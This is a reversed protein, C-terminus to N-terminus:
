GGQRRLGQEQVGAPRPRPRAVRLNGAAGRLVGRRVQHAAARPRHRPSLPPCPRICRTKTSAVRVVAKRSPRSASTREHAQAHAGRPAGCGDGPRRLLPAEQLRQLIGRRHPQLIRQNHRGAPALPHPQARPSLPRRFPGTPTPLRNLSRRSKRDQLRELTLAGPRGRAAAGDASWGAAPRLAAAPARAPRPVARAAGRRHVAQGAPAPRRAAPFASPQCCFELGSGMWARVRRGAARRASALDRQAAADAAAGDRLACLRAAAGIRRDRPTSAVNCELSM